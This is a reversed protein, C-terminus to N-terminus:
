LFTDLFLLLVHKRTARTGKPETQPENENKKKRQAHGERRGIKDFSSGSWTKTKWKSKTENENM